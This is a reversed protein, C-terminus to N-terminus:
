KKKSFLVSATTMLFLTGLAILFLEETLISERRGYLAIISGLTLNSGFIRGSYKALLPSIRKGSLYVGYYTFFLGVGTLALIIFVDKMNHFMNIIDIRMGLRFFFIPGFFGFVIANLKSELEGHGIVVESTIMGLVFAIIASDVGVKESVVAIVLLTLLIIKLEFEFVNGKFRSFIKKGFFPFFHSFIFLLVILFVIEISFKTFFINWITIASLEGIMAASLIIKGAENVKGNGKKRLIPSIISLSTASFITSMLLVQHLNMNLIRSILGIMFIFTALFPFLFGSFGIILSKKLNTRLLDIDIDLGAIYMACIMGINALIDITEIKAFHLIGIHTLSIAIMGALIEFIAAIIDLNISLVGAILIFLGIVVIEEM